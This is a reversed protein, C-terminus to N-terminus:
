RGTADECAAALGRLAEDLRRATARRLMFGGTRSSGRLKQTQTLTVATGGDVPALEFAIVSEALVRAFPSGAVQQRWTVASPERADVIQFDIRVPRGRQTRMVQTFRAGEVAEVREVGPWWRPQHHADGILEWV